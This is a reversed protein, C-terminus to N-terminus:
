PEVEEGSPASLCATMFVFRGQSLRVYEAGAEAGAVCDGVRVDLACLFGSIDNATM